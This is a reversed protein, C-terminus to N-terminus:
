KLKIKQQSGAGSGRGVGNNNNSIYKKDFIIKAKKKESFNTKM